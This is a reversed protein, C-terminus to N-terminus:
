PCLNRGLPGIRKKFTTLHINPIPYPKFHKPPVSPDLDIHVKKNKYHGLGGDFLTTYKDLVAQLRQQKNFSLHKLQIVVDAIDVKEYKAHLITTAFADFEDDDDLAWHYSLPSTWFNDTKMPVISDIWRMVKNEFDLNLGIKHLLDRRVIMDYRCHSDFVFAGSGNIRKTKDFEPLLIDSLFVKRQSQLMGAVTQFQVPGNELPSPVAGKPLCSSHIMTHSGGSDLLIKLIRNSEHNQIKRCMLLTSPIKNEVAPLNEDIHYNENNNGDTSDYM